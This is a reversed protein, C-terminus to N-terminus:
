YISPPRNCPDQQRYTRRRYMSPYTNRVKLGGFEISMQSDDLSNVSMCHAPTDDLLRSDM